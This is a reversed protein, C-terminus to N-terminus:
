NGFPLVYELGGAWGTSKSLYENIRYEAVIFFNDFTRFGLQHETVWVVEDPGINQDAFGALYLREDFIDPAITLNYIYEMQWNNGNLEDIQVPFFNVAFAFNYKKFFEKFPPVQGFDVLVGGRALDNEEGSQLAAQASLSVFGDQSFKWRLNQETYYITSDTKDAAKVESELNTLSFYQFRGEIDALLNVTMVNFERGDRYYNFDFLGKTAKRETTVQAHALPLALLFCGIISHILSM